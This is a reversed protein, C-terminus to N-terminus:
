YVVNELLQQLSPALSRILPSLRAGSWIEVDSANGTGHPGDIAGPLALELGSDGSTWWSAVRTLRESMPTL